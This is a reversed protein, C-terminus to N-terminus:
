EKQHESQELVLEQTRTVYRGEKLAQKSEPVVLHILSVTYMGQALGLAAMEGFYHRSVVIQDCTHESYIKFITNLHM